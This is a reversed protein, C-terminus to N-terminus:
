GRGCGRADPPENGALASSGSLSRENAAQTGRDRPGNAQGPYATKNLLYGITSDASIDEENIRWTAKYVPVDRRDIESRLANPVPALLGAKQLGHPGDASVSPTSSWIQACEPDERILKETGYSLMYYPHLALWDRLPRSFWWARTRPSGRLLKTLVKVGFQADENRFPHDGCYALLRDFLRSVLINDRQAALFWSSLIRDPGPRRFAFFGSGTNPPLWDDLPRMCFCTADAWVGGHHALLDLRLLGSRHQPSLTAIAGSSYDVSAYDRLAEEDLTM